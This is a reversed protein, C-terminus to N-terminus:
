CSPTTRDFYLLLDFSRGVSMTFGADESLPRDRDLWARATEPASRQDLYYLPTGVAAFTGDISNKPPTAVPFVFKGCGWQGGGVLNGITILSPGLRARLHQGLVTSTDTAAPGRNVVQATAIHFRSAFVLIRAGPGEQDLIWEINDAMGRDRVNTAETFWAPRRGPTPKWGVPIQRLWNDTQRAGVATRRAWQYARESGRSRYLPGRRELFSNLDAIAATIQDREPAALASYADIATRPELALFPALRTRIEDAAASDVRALYTLTVDVGTQLRRRVSPNGPSGPIDFGYFRVPRGTRNRARLWEVLTRNQPAVGFTWSMGTDVVTALDGPAGNVYDHIVQGEAIGSEIAIATFGGREVLRQFLRNRFELPEAGLHVAESLAVVRAPGIMRLLPGLDAATGGTTTTRIPHKAATAWRIVAANDDQARAPTALSVTALLIAGTVRRTM